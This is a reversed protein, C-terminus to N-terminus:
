EDGVSGTTGDQQRKQRTPTAELAADSRKLIRIQGPEPTLVGARYLTSFYSLSNPNRTTAASSNVAAWSQLTHQRCRVQAVTTGDTDLYSRAIGEVILAAAEEDERVAALTDALRQYRQMREGGRVGRAISEWKESDSADGHAHVVEIRHDVDRDSAHTLFLRIGGIDFNLLRAYPAFVGLLRQQLPSPSLNASLCVVIVFLHVFLLISIIARTTEGLATEARDERTGTHETKKRAKNM